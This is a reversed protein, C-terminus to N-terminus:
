ARGPVGDFVFVGVAVEAAHVDARRAVSCVQRSRRRQAPHGRPYADAVPRGSWLPGRTTVRPAIAGVPRTQPPVAYRTGQRQSPYRSSPWARAELGPREPRDCRELRELRDLREFAEARAEFDDLEEALDVAARLHPRAGKATASFWCRGLRMWGSRCM